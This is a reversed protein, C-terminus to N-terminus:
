YPHSETLLTEARLTRRIDKMLLVLHLDDTPSKEFEPILRLYFDRAEDSQAHILLGRCGIKDSLDLLRLVVDRM